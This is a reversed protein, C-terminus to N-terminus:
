TEKMEAGHVILAWLILIDLGIMIASWIPYAELFAINVIASLFAVIVCVIRAWRWGALLSIGALMVIIGGILHVWGWATYDAPVVLGDDTVLFKQDYFLAVVGQFAHFGGLLLMMLGTFMIWGMWGIPQDYGSARTASPGRYESM